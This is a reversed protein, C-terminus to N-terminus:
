KNFQPLKRGNTLKFYTNTYDNHIFPNCTAPIPTKYFLKPVLIITLAFGITNNESTNLVKQTPEHRKLDPRGSFQQQYCLRKADYLAPAATLLECFADRKVDDFRPCLSSMSCSHWYIHCATTLVTIFSQQGHGVSRICVESPPSQQMYLTIWSFPGTNHSTVTDTKILFFFTWEFM